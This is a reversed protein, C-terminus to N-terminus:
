SSSYTLVRMEISEDLVTLIIYELTMISSWISIPKLNPEKRFSIASLYNKGEPQWMKFYWQGRCLGNELVKIRFLRGKIQEGLPGELKILYKKREVVSYQTHHWNWFKLGYIATVEGMHLTDQVLTKRM